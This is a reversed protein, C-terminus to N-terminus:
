NGGAGVIRRNTQSSPQLLIPSSYHSRRVYNAQHFGGFPFLAFVAAEAYRYVGKPSDTTALFATNPDLNASAVSKDLWVFGFIIMVLLMALKLTGFVNNLRIGWRRSM